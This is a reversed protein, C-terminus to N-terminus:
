LVCSSFFSAEIRRNSMNTYVSAFGREIPATSVIGGIDGATSVNTITYPSYVSDISINTTLGIISWISDSSIYATFALGRTDDITGTRSMSVHHSITGLSSTDYLEEPISILAGNENLKALMIKGTEEQIWALSFYDGTWATNNFLFGTEDSTEDGYFINEETMPAGNHSYTYADITYPPPHEINFSQCAVVFSTPSSAVTPFGMFHFCTPAPSIHEETIVENNTSNIITLYLQDDTTEYEVLSTAAIRHNYYSASAIEGNINLTELGSDPEGTTANITYTYSTDDDFSYHIIQIVDDKWFAPTRYTFPTIEAPEHERPAFRPGDADIITYLSRTTERWQVFVANGNSVTTIMYPIEDNEESVQIPGAVLELEPEPEGDCDNDLGDCLEEAGPYVEANTDDCDEDCRSGDGDLDDDFVCTGDVCDDTSCELGDDCETADECEPPSDGDTDGDGDADGDGDIDSDVDADADAEDPVCSLGRPHYGSNCHCMPSSSEEFCYGHDSCTVGDCPDPPPDDGCAGTLGTLVFFLLILLERM